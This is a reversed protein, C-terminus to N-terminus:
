GAAARFRAIARERAERHDVIPAPYDRGIECGCARQVEAPMKWPERLHEDPVDRLEPVFRRVYAGRPDYREMHRAPNYLRRFYPARDVGVSAIWQWNGNNNAEDGDILLRMFHREGERWDIGLDKTLFSGVVLRARNHMWGERLLQRMGADVLPFGTRGAKWAELAEADDEWGLAGDRYREQFEERANGPNRLLVHHHFDRWALQRRFAANSARSEVERASVCGFHLYPSLRSTRDEGLADHSREYGEIPGALFNKLRRRAELEGGRMPEEVSSSLGLEALSPIAGPDLGDPLQVRRPAGLVSQRPEREWARHFPTFVVYPKIDGVHDVVTLGPHAQLDLGEVRRSRAFPSVDYTFHVREAGVERALRPLEREPPGRRVVLGGGRERLSEDLDALCELMFQTRPGSAHRGHLLRDDLFFVPVVRDAEALAARLAPHDRVRLDRRFWVIATMCQSRGERVVPILAYAARM